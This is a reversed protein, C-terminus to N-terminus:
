FTESKGTGATGGSAVVRLVGDRVLDVETGPPVTGLPRGDATVAVDVEREVTVSVASLPVVWHDPDTSFPAVPVVAAADTGAAVVPGGAARAYGRSGAPTAVTVGDARFRALPDADDAGAATAVSFGSITAPEDAVLAVEFLAYGDGVPTEVRLVPYERLDGTGALLREVGTELPDGPSDLRTEVPLVPISVGAAALEALAADGVAVVAEADIAAPGTLVDGVVDRVRDVVGGAERGPAVVGVSPRDGEPERGSTTM